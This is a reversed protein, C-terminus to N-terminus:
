FLVSGIRLMSAGEEIAIKYDNSMGMSLDITDPYVLSFEDRIGRLRQFQKRIIETDDTDTAMGMVGVIRVGHIDGIDLIIQKTDRPDFGGKQMENSINFQLLVRIDKGQNIAEDNIKKLHKISSVSQIVDFLKVIKKIKKSQIQGIFHKEIPLLGAEKDVFAEIRNEGIATAGDRIIENTSDTDVNKTVAVFLIKRQSNNIEQAIKNYIKNM